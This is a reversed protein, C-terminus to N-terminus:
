LLISYIGRVGHSTRRLWEQWGSAESSGFREALANAPRFAISSRCAASAASGASEVLLWVSSAQNVMHIMAQMQAYPPM